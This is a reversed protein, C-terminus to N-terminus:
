VILSGKEYPNNKTIEFGKEEKFNKRYERYKRVHKKL